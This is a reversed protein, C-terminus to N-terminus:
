SHLDECFDTSHLTRNNPMQCVATGTCTSLKIVHKDYNWDFLKSIGEVFEFFAKIVENKGTSGMGSLLM